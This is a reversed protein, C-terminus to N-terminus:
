QTVPAVDAQDRASVCFSGRLFWGGHFDCPPTLGVWEKTIEQPIIFTLGRPFSSRLRMLCHKANELSFFIVLSNGSNELAAKEGTNPADETQDPTKLKRACGAEVHQSSDWCCVFLM